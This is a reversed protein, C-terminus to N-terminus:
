RRTRVIARRTLVALLVSLLTAVVAAVAMADYAPVTRDFGNDWLANVWTHHPGGFVALFFDLLDNLLYWGAAVVIAWLPFTAYRQILFAQVVMGVHSWILFQWLLFPIYGPGEVFLQVFVAWLGYKLCGIFALLHILQALRGTYGRRWATLSLAIYLTALPSVPVIPWMVIPTESLQAGYFWFGFATGLLNIAVVVWLLRFALNELWTPLPAVVWSRSHKEPVPADTRAAVASEIRTGVRSM